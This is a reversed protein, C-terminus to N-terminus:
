SEELHKVLLSVKRTWLGRYRDLWEDLEALPEPNLRYLRQQANSRVTVLGADELM